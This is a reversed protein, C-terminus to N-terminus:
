APLRLELAHEQVWSLARRVAGVAVVTEGLTSARLVPVPDHAIAPLERAAYELVPAASAAAAGALIIVEVDLLDALAAFVVTMREGIRTIVDAALPDGTAAAAFVEPATLADVPIRDLASPERGIRRLAESAWRRALLGIGDASGVGVLLDLFRMEGVRGHVGRLLAGDIVVGAGLREGSLLALYNRVGAGAGTWGEALAALNADNDVLTVWGRAAFRETFPPNMRKWFDDDGGPSYGEADVPAPVGVAVALVASSAVGAERLAALVAGEIEDLRRTPDTRAHDVQVSRQVLREGLMDNVFVTLRHIGADVGVVVGADARLAYRRAPRGKSYEGALRQNDLERFWGREVLEDCVGIVTSRTLGTTAILESATLPAGGWARALVDTANLRRVPNLADTTLM